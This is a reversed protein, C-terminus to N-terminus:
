RNGKGPGFRGQKTRTALRPGKNEPATRMAKAGTAREQMATLFPDPTFREAWEQALFLEALRPALDPVTGVEYTQPHLGDPCAVRTELMRVLM